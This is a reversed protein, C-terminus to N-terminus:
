AAAREERQGGGPPVPFGAALAELTIEPDGAERAMTVIEPWRRPPIANDLRWRYPRSIHCRLRRAIAVEGLRSVIESHDM